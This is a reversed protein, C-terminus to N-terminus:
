DEHQDKLVLIIDDIYWSDRFNAKFYAVLDKHEPGYTRIAAIVEHNFWRQVTTREFYTLINSRDKM